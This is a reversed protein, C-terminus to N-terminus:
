PGQIVTVQNINQAGSAALGSSLILFFPDSDILSFVGNPNSPTFAPSAGATHSYTFSTSALLANDFYRHFTGTGTGSNVSWVTALRHFQTWTPAVQFAAPPVTAIQNSNTNGTGTCSGPTGSLTWEHGAVVYQTVATGGAPFSESFDTEVYETPCQPTVMLHTTGLSWFAFNENTGGLAPNFAVSVEFYGGGGFIKGIYGGAGDYIATHIGQDNAGTLTIGRGPTDLAITSASTLSTRNPWNTRLYWNFGPAGSNTMDITSLSSFNDSLITTNFGNNLVELPYDYRKTFINAFTNLATIDGTTLGGGIFAFSITDASFNLM